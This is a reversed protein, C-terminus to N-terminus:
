LQEPSIYVVGYKGSLIAEEVKDRVSTVNIADLQKDKLDSVQDKMISILPSVVVVVSTVTQRELQGRLADFLVPLLM